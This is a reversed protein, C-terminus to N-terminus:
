WDYGTEWHQKAKVLWSRPLGYRRDDHLNEFTQPGIKSLSLLQKFESLEEDTVRAEFRTPQLTAGSPIIGFDAM